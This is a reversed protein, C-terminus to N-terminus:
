QEAAQGCAAAVIPAGPRCKWSRRWVPVRERRGATRAQAVQHSPHAVVTFAGCEDVLVLRAAGVGGDRVVEARAIEREPRRLRDRAGAPWGPGM